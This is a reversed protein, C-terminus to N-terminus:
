FARGAGLGAAELGLADPGTFGLGAEAFRRGAGMLVAFGGAVVAAPLVGDVLEAFDVGADLPLLVGDWFVGSVGAVGM